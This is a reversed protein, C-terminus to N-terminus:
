GRARDEAARVVQEAVVVLKTNTRQSLAVLHDFAAERDLRCSTVVVGVATAIVRNSRLATELQHVTRALHAADGVPASPCRKGLAGVVPATGAAGTAGVAEGLDM